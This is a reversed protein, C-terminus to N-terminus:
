SATRDASAGVTGVDEVGHQEDAAVLWAAGVVVHRRARHGGGIGVHGLSLEAEGEIAGAVPDRRDDDRGPHGRATKVSSYRWVEIIAVSRSTHSRPSGNVAALGARM